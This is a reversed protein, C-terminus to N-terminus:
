KSLDVDINGLGPPLGTLEDIIKKGNCVTCITGTTNSIGTVHEVGTGGCLPCVQYTM